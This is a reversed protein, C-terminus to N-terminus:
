QERGQWARWAKESNGVRGHGGHRRVTGQGTMGEM